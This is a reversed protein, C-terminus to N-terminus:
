GARPLLRSGFRFRTPYGRTPWIIIFFRTFPKDNGCKSNSTILPGPRLRVFFYSRFASKPKKSKAFLLPNSVIIISSASTVCSSVIDIFIAPTSSLPKILYIASVQYM